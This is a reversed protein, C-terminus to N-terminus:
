MGKSKAKSMQSQSFHKKKNNIKKKKQLQFMPDSMLMIAFIRRIHGLLIHLFIRPGATAMSVFHADHKEGTASKTNKVNKCFVDYWMEDIM